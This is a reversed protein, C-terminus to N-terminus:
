RRADLTRVHGYSLIREDATVLTLERIRATAVLIRDAPDKHFAGPLRYAEAAIEHTLEISNCGIADLSSSVWETLNGEISLTGMDILRAIELTSITAVHLATATDTLQAKTDPGLREHAEHMWIWVHTDLLLSM